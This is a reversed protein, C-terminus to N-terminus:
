DLAEVEVMEIVGVADNPEAVGEAVNYTEGEVDSLILLLVDPEGTDVVDADPRALAM